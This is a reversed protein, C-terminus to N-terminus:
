WPAWFDVLVPLTAALVEREFTADTAHVPRGPHGAAAPQPAAPGTTSRGLLQAVHSSLDDPRAVHVRTIERGAHLGIALPTSDVAFRQMGIPNERANIKAVILRGAERSALALLDKNYPALVQHDQWFFLMVPVPAQLLRDLSGDHAIIPADFLRAM